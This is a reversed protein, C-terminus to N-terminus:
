FNFGFGNSLNYRTKPVTIPPESDYIFNLSANFTLRKTLKISLSTELLMRYDSFNAFNPQYYVIANFTLYGGFNFGGSLYSSWRHDRNFVISDEASTKEDEYMYLTGVYLQTTDTRFLKFRPGTGMLYRIDIEHIADFQEQVFAEWTVRETWNYNYRLHAYQFNNFVTFDDGFVDEKSFTTRTYGSLLMLKSQKFEYGLYGTANLTLSQGAKSQALGFSTNINGEFVRDQTNLRLKETNVVQAQLVFTCSCFALVLLIQKKM